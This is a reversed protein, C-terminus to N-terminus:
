QGGREDFADLREMRQCYDEHSHAAPQDVEMAAMEELVDWQPLELAIAAWEILGSIEASVPQWTVPSWGDVDPLDWAYVTQKTRRHLESSVTAGKSTLWAECQERTVGREFVDTGTPYCRAKFKALEAEAASKGVSVGAEYAAGIWDKVWDWDRHFFNDEGAGADYADHIEGSPLRMVIATPTASGFDEVMEGQIRQYEERSLWSPRPEGKRLFILKFDSTV